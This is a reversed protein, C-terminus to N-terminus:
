EMLVSLWHVRSTLMSSVEFLLFFNEVVLLVLKKNEFAGFFAKSLSICSIVSFMVRTVNLLVVVVFVVVILADDDVLGTISKVAVLTENGEDDMELANGNFDDDVIALSFM